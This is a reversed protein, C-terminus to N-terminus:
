RVSSFQRPRSEDLSIQHAKFGRLYARVAAEDELPVLDSPIGAQQEALSSSSKVPKAHKRAKETQTVHALDANMGSASGAVAAMGNTPEARSRKKNSPRDQVCVCPKRAHTCIWEMM